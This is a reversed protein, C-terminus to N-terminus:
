IENEIKLVSWGAPNHFSEHYIPATTSLEKEDTGRSCNYRCISIRSGDLQDLTMNFSSLPIEFHVSWGVIEDRSFEKVDSKMHSKFKMDDLKYEGKRFFEISKFKLELNINNPTAHLEYYEDRGAPQFFVEAVDGLTWTLDGHEKADSYIDSDEFLTLVHLSTESSWVAVVGCEKPIHQEEEQILLTMVPLQLPFEGEPYVNCVYERNDTKTGSLKSEKLANIYYNLM